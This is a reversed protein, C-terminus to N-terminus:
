HNYTYTLKKNFQQISFLLLVFHIEASNVSNDFMYRM